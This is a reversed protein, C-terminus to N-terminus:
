YFFKKVAFIKYVSKYDTQSNYTSLVHTPSHKQVKLALEQYWYSNSYAFYWTKCVPIHAKLDNCTSYKGIAGLIAKMSLVRHAGERSSPLLSASNPQQAASTSTITAM